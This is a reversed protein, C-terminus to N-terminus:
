RVFARTQFRVGETMPRQTLGNISTEPPLMSKNTISAQGDHHSQHSAFPVSRWPSTANGCEWTDLSRGAGDDRALAAAYAIWQGTFERKKTANQYKAVTAM